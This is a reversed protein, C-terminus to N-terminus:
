KCPLKWFKWHTSKGKATWSTNGSSFCIIGTTKPLEKFHRHIWDDGENQRVLVEDNTKLDPRPRICYKWSSVGSCLCDYVVHEVITKPNLAVYLAPRLSEYELNRVMVKEGWKFEEM